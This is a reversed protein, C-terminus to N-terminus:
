LQKSKEVIKGLEEGVQQDSARRNLYGMDIKETFNALLTLAQELDTQPATKWFKYAYLREVILDEIGVLKLTYGALKLTRTKDVSGSLLTGVLDVTINLGENVWVRSTKTFGLSELLEEAKSRDSVVLDVDGTVFQGSTYVEVAEGGVVYTEVGREALRKAIYGVLLLKRKFESPEQSIAEWEGRGSGAPPLRGHRGLRRRPKTKRPM